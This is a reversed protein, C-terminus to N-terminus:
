WSHGGYVGVGITPAMAPGYPGYPGYPAGVYSVGYGVSVGSCGTLFAILAVAVIIRYHKKM